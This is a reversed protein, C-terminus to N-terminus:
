KKIWGFYAITIAAAIIAVIAIGIGVNTPTAEPLAFVTPVATPIVAVATTWTLVIENAGNELDFGTLTVKDNTGIDFSGSDDGDTVITLSDTDFNPFSGENNERLASDIILRTDNDFDQPSTVEITLECETGACVANPIDDIKPGKIYYRRVQTWSDEYNADTITFNADAPVTAGVIASPRTLICDIRNNDTLHGTNTDVITIISRVYVDDRELEVDIYDSLLEGTITKKLMAANVDTYYDIECNTLSVTIKPITWANVSISLLLVILITFFVKKMMKNM